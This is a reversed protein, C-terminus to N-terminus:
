FLSLLYFSFSLLQKLEFVRFQLQSSRALVCLEFSSSRMEFSDSVKIKESKVQRGAPLSKDELLGRLVISLILTESAGSVPEIGTSAVVLVSYDSTEANKQKYLTCHILM